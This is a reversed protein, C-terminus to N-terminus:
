RKRKKRTLFRGRSTMARAQEVSRRVVDSVSRGETVARQQLWGLLEDSVRLAILNRKTVAM